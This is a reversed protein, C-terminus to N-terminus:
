SQKGKKAAQFEALNRLATERTPGVAVTPYQDVTNGVLRHFSEIKSERLFEREYVGAIWIGEFEWVPIEPVPELTDWDVQVETTAPPPIRGDLFTNIQEPTIMGAPIRYDPVIHLAAMRRIAAEEATESQRRWLTNGSTRYNKRCFDVGEM